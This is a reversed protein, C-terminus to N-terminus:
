QKFFLQAIQLGNLAAGKRLNDAVIWMILTKSDAIDKHIRGIFVPDQGSVESCVPYSSLEPSDVVKLGPASSLMQRIAELSADKKLQVWAVESHGNMTPTRVTFASILLDERNLIKQSERMIKLEETCFGDPGIGGIQPINTFAITHPFVKSAATGNNLISLTSSKLEEIGDRGAGSVSQYTAVHIREIGLNKELPWLALVLQITSCNPNAIIQGRKKLDIIHGNIEPVVLPFEPNMRFAASNDIVIAGASAAAPAYQTSIDDGSSFFVVDLGEFCGDSLAKLPIKEDRFVVHTGASGPSAFLRLEETPVKRERLLKLFEQGVIGTAGVIGVCISHKM